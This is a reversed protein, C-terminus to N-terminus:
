SRARCRATGASAASCRKGTDREALRRVLRDDLRGRDGRLRSGPHRAAHDPGAREAQLALVLLARLEHAEVVVPATLCREVRDHDREVGVRRRHHERQAPALEVEDHLHRRLLRARELVVALVPDVGHRDDDCLMNPIRTSRSGKRSARTRLATASVSLRGSMMLRTSRPAPVTPLSEGNKGPKGDVSGDILCRLCFRASAM